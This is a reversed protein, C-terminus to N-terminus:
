DDFNLKGGFPSFSTIIEIVFIFIIRFLVGGLFGVPLFSILRGISLLKKGVEKFTEKM